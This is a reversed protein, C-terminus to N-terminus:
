GIRVEAIMGEHLHDTNKSTIPLFCVFAYTGPQLALVLGAAKHPSIATVGGAPLYPLQGQASAPDLLVAKAQEFTAGNKVRYIAAEHAISGINEIRMVGPLISDPVVIKYEELQIGPAAPVASVTSAAAAEGTVTFPKVMGKAAHPVGQADPIVCVAVYSGPELDADIAEVGGPAVAQPGPVFEYKNLTATPDALFDGFLGDLTQGEAFRVITMHHEEAGANVGVWRTPGAPVEAPLDFSYDAMTVTVTNVPVASAPLAPMVPMVAPGVEVATGPPPTTAHATVPAFLLVGAAVVFPVKRM